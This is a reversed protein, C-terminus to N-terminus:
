LTLHEPQVWQLDQSITVSARHTKLYVAGTVADFATLDASMTFDSSHIVQLSVYFPRGFPLERTMEVWDTSLPLCACGHFRRVWILLGQYMIDTLFGNISSVQFQGQREWSLGPHECLLLAGDKTLSIVQRVGQFDRGHFLTGDQYLVSADALVPTTQQLDPLAENAPNPRQSLLIIQGQYHPLPLRGNQQSTITVLVQICEENKEQEQVVVQYDTPQHGDFVIGKFLRVNNERYLYFGPYLNDVTQTLWANAINIPLVPKGQIIHHSLFPNAELTMTRHISYTRLPETIVAKAMPLTGGLVVQVQGQAQESLQDVFALPGEDSPVLAVQHALLIKKLEPSVMGADWAGWNISVVQVNPYNRRFLHAFGNLVENAMAYDTQGVNGYFGAVSSFLVVHRLDAASIAQMVSALGLVKVDFVADFDAETKNEILKDALRGAGHILGTIPGTLPTAQNLVAKVAETNTIDVSRYYIIGGQANIHAINAQIERQALVENVMREVVKPMPKEGSTKLSEMALRKLDATERVEHAWAPEEDRLETRGLLIFACGFTSALQNVCSATIGRGGGTVLFVSKKTIPASLSPGTFPAAPEAVLTFRNGEAGYATQTLCINADYLELGIKNAAEAASLGPALDIARCFVKPWELNLSKTLGYLANGLVTGKGANSTGFAGDQRTITLFAPRAQWSSNNLSLKLHKALLFATKVLQKEQAAAFHQIDVTNTLHPYLFIFQSVAGPVTALVQRITEEQVDPLRLELVGAPLTCGQQAVLSEPFILVVVKHGSRILDTCLTSTLDSGDHTILTIGEPSV